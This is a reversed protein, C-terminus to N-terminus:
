ALEFRDVDAVSASFAQSDPNRGVVLEKVGGRHVGLCHSSPVLCAEIDAEIVWEYSSTAFRHIEAMADQARRGPRYGYSSPYFESEFIPEIVLKLAMQVVRDKLTPVGLRRMRGDRKPIMRERVPLPRFEGAKLESRLGSLFREM